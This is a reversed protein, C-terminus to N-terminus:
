HPNGATLRLTFGDPSRDLVVHNCCMHSIWLGRGGPGSGAPLLGAFPDAPGPGRDSVTAVIRDAGSWLRFRVPPRGHLLANTVAESVAVVLEAVEEAPLGPDARHVAHRAQAPTPDTLEVVPPAAQVPDAAAPRPETLYVGPETYADSLERRGGPRAVRPHTRAIDHLVAAPTRGTDYACMSWLPFEAYAHNVASEYRAWWDWTAGFVVPDLEGLLRIRTAGRAVHRALLRQYERIAASPRAYMDGGTLFEVTAGAPLAARVLASHQEGLAVLTTDGADDGGRLFPLVLDLFEDDGCYHGADHWHGPAPARVSDGDM